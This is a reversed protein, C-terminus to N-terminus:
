MPKTHARETRVGISISSPVGSRVLLYGTM